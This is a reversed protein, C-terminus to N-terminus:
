TRDRPSQSKKRGFLTLGVMGIGLLLMTDPEPIAGGVVPDSVNGLWGNRGTATTLTFQGFFDAGNAQGHTSFLPCAPGSVCDALFSGDGTPFYGAM